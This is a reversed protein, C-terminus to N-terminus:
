MDLESRTELLANYAVCLDFYESCAFDYEERLGYSISENEVAKEIKEALADVEREKNEIKTLLDVLDSDILHAEEVRLAEVEAMLSLLEEDM